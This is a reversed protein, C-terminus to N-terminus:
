WHGPMPRRTLNNIHDVTIPGVMCEIAIESDLVIRGDETRFDGGKQLIM